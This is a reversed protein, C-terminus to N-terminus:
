CPGAGERSAVGTGQILVVGRRKSSPTRRDHRLLVGLLLVRSHEGHVVLAEDVVGLVTLLALRGVTLATGRPRDRDHAVRHQVLLALVDGLEPGLEVLQDGVHEGALAGGLAHAQRGVLDADVQLDEDVVALVVLALPM